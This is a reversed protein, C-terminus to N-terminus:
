GADEELDPAPIGSAELYGLGHRKAYTACERVKRLLVTCAPGEGHRGAARIMGAGAELLFELLQGVEGPPVYAGIARPGPIELPLGDALAPLEQLVEAFLPHAPKLCAPPAIGSARCVTELGDVDRAQWFPMARAHLRVARWGMEEQLVELAVRPPGDPAAFTGARRAAAAVDFLDRMERLLDGRYALDASPEPLDEPPFATPFGRDLRVLQDLAAAEAVRASAATRYEHVVDAVREASEETVFFPRGHLHLEPDLLETARRTAPDVKHDVALATAKIREFLGGTREPKPPEAAELAAELARVTRRAVWWSRRVAIAADVFGQPQVKRGALLAGITEEFFSPDVPHFSVTGRM